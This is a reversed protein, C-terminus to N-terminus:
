LYSTSVQCPCRSQQFGTQSNWVM